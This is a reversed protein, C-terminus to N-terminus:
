YRFLSPLDVLVHVVAEHLAEQLGVLLEKRKRLCCPSFPHCLM